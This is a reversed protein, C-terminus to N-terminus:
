SVFFSSNHLKVWDVVVTPEHEANYKREELQLLRDSIANAEETQKM